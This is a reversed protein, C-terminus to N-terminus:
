LQAHCLKSPCPTFIHHEPLIAAHRSVLLRSSRVMRQKRCTASKLRLLSASSHETALASEVLVTVLGRQSAGSTSVPDGWVKAETLVAAQQLQQGSTSAPVAAPGSHRLASYPAASLGALQVVRGLPAPKKPLARPTPLAMLLTHHCDKGQM